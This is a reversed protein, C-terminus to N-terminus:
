GGKGVKVGKIFNKRKDNLKEYRLNPEGQIVTTNPPVSETIWVDGGIICGEGIITNGGLITANAYIIVKDKITPHRKKNRNSDVNHISTGGLTVGQYIRVWNGIKSTE